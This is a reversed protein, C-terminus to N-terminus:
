GQSKYPVYYLEGKEEEGTDYRVRRALGKDLLYQLQMDLIEPDQGQCEQKIEALTRYGTQAIFKALKKPDM